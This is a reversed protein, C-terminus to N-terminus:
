CSLWHEASPRASQSAPTSVSSATCTSLARIVRGLQPMCTFTSSHIALLSHNTFWQPQKPTHQALALCPHSLRSPATAKRISRAPAVSRTRVFLSAPLTCKRGTALLRFFAPSSFYNQLRRGFQLCICVRAALVQLPVFLVFQAVLVPTGSPCAHHIQIAISRALVPPIIDWVVRQM